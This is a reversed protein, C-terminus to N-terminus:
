VRIGASDCASYGGLLWSGEQAPSYSLLAITEGDRKVALERYEAEPYGVTIIEDDAEIGNVKERAIEEPDGKTGVPGSIYDLVASVILQDPCELESPTWYDEPDHIQIVLRKPEPDTHKSGPWCAVKLEGPASRAVQETVGESFDLGTGNLSVFEDARNDVQIHVGDASARVEENILETSGDGHCVIDLRAPVNNPITPNPGAASPDESGGCAAVVAAWIALLVWTRRM